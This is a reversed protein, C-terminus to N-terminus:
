WTDTEKGTSLIHYSTMQCFAAILYCYSEFKITHLIFISCSGTIPRIEQQQAMVKM